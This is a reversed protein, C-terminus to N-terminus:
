QTTVNITMAPGTVVQVFLTNVTAAASGLTWNSVRAIGSADTVTTVITQGGINGGGATVQFQVTLGALANGNADKVVVAAPVTSGPTATTPTVGPLLTVTTGGPVTLGQATFYITPIGVASVQAALTNTGAVPALNWTGATAIGNADTTATPNQV